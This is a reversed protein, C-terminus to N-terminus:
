TSGCRTTPTNTSTYVYYLEYKYWCLVNTFYKWITYYSQMVIPLNKINDGIKGGDWVTRAVKMAYPTGDINKINVLERREMEM